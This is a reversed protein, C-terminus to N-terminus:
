LIPLRWQELRVLLSVKNLIEAALSVRHRHVEINTIIKVWLTLGYLTAVCLELLMSYIVLKNAFENLLNSSGIGVWGLACPPPFQFCTNACDGPPRPAASVLGAAVLVIAM